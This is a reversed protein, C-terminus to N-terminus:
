NFKFQFCTLNGTRRKKEFKQTKSEKLKRYILASFSTKFLKIGKLYFSFMFSLDITLMYFSNTPQRTYLLCM